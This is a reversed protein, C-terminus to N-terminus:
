LKIKSINEKGIIVRLNEVVHLGCVTVGQIPIIHDVHWAYGFM